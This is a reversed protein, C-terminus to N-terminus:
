QKVLLGKPNRAKIAQVIGRAQAASAAVLHLKATASTISLCNAAPVAQEDGLALLVPTFKGVQVSLVDDLELTNDGEPDPIRARVSEDEAPGWHLASVVSGDAQQEDAVWIAIDKHLLKGNQLTYGVVHAGAANFEAVSADESRPSVADELNVPSAGAAHTPAFRERATSLTYARKRESVGGERDPLVALGAEEALATLGALLLAADPFSPAEIDIFNDRSQVTVALPGFKGGTSIRKIQQLPFRRAEDTTDKDKSGISSIWLSDEDFFLTIPTKAVGLGKAGYSPFLVNCGLGESLFRASASAPVSLAVTPSNLADADNIAFVTERENQSQQTVRFGAAQLVYQLGALFAALHGATEARAGLKNSSTEVVVSRADSGVRVRDIRHIPVSREEAIDRSGQESWQLAGFPTEFSSAAVYFVDIASGDEARVYTAGTQLYGVAHLPAPFVARPQANSIAAAFDATLPNGVQSFEPKETPVPQTAAGGLFPQVEAAKLVGAPVPSKAKSASWIEKLAELFQTRISSSDLEINLSQPVGGDKSPANVLSMVHSKPVPIMAESKATATVKGLFVDRIGHLALRRNEDTARDGASTNWYLSGYKTGDLEHFLFVRESHVHEGNGHWLTAMIGIDALNSAAAAPVVGAGARRPSWLPMNGPQSAALADQLREQREKSTLLTQLAFFFANRTPQDRAVLNWQTGDKSGISMCQHDPTGRFAPEMFVSTKKKYWVDSVAALDMARTSTRKDPTATPTWYLRDDRTDLFVVASMSSERTGDARVVLIQFEAGRGLLQEAEVFAPLVPVSFSYRRAARGPLPSVAESVQPSMPSGARQAVVGRGATALLNFLAYLFDTRAQDSPAILDVQLGRGIISLAQTDKVDRQARMNPTQRGALLDTIERLAVNGQLESGKERRFELSGLRGAESNLHIFNSELTGKTTVRMFTVGAELYKVSDERSQHLPHAAPDAPNLESCSEANLYAVAWPLQVSRIGDARAKSGGVPAVGRGYPTYLVQAPKASEGNFFCITGGVDIKAIGDEKRSAEVVVGRGFWTDVIDGAKLKHANAVGAGEVVRKQTQTFIARIASLWADREERSPLQLDLAVSGQTYLSFCNSTHAGTDPKAAKLVKTQRGILVDAIHQILMQSRGDKQRQPEQGQVVPSWFLCGQKGHGPEYWLFIQRPAANLSHLTVVAGQQIASTQALLTANAEVANQTPHRLEKVPTGALTIAAELAEVITKREGETHTFASFSRNRSSVGFALKSSLNALAPAKLAPTKRGLYFDRVTHVAISRSPDKPRGTGRPAWYLTGARGEQPELWLIVPTTAGGMEVSTVEYGQQLAILKRQIVRQARPSSVAELVAQGQEVRRTEVKTATGETFCAQLGRSWRRLAQPNAAVLNLNHDPYLQSRLSVCRDAAVDRADEHQFEETQKAGIVVDTVQHLPLVQKPVYVREGAKNSWFLAGLPSGDQEYWVHVPHSRSRKGTEDLQWLDFDQGETVATAVDPLNRESARPSSPVAPFVFSRINRDPAAQTEDVRKGSSTFLGKIAEIWENRQQTDRAELHVAASRSALSFMNATRVDRLEARNRISAHKGTFVDSIKHMPITQGPVVERKGQDCWFITGLKEAKPDYFLFIPKNEVRQGDASMYYSTFNAGRALLDVAARQRPQDAARPSVPLGGAVGIETKRHADEFLNRIGVAWRARTEEDPAELHLAPGASTVISLARLSQVPAPVVGVKKWAHTGAYIDRAKDLPLQREATKTRDAVDSGDNWYLSGVKGDNAGDQSLFVTVEKGERARDQSSLDFSRFSSGARMAENNRAADGAVRANIEAARVATGPSLPSMPSGQPSSTTSQGEGTAIAAPRPQGNVAAQAAILAAQDEATLGPQLAAAPVTTPQAAAAVTAAAPSAAPAATATKKKPTWFGKITALTANRMQDDAAILHLGEGKEKDLMLSFCTTSPIDKAFETKFEASQKGLFVDRIKAVPVAREPSKTKDGETASYYLTGLKGDAPDHWLFIDSTKAGGPASADMVVSRYVKGDALVNPAADAAAAPAATTSAAQGADTSAGEAAHAAAAKKAKSQKQIDFIEKVGALWQTRVQETPAVLHLSRDKSVLSFCQLSPYNEVDPANFEPARRGLFVDSVRHMPVGTSDDKFRSTQGHAADIPNTYLVGFKSEAPDLFVHVDQKVSPAGDVGGSLLIFQQGAIMARINATQGDAPVGNAAPATTSAADATGNTAVGGAAAAAAEKEAKKAAQGAAFISKIGAIWAARVEASEAVLHLPLTKAGLTMCQESAFEAAAPSKFLPQQKGSFVDSIKNLPLSQGEVKTKNKGEVDNNFHLAGLKSPRVDPEWWLFIPQVTVEDASAGATLLRMVSGAELVSTSSSSTSM